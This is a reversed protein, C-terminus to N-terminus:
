SWSLSPAVSNKVEAFAQLGKHIPFLCNALPMEGSQMASTIWATFNSGTAVSPQVNSVFLSARKGRFLTWTEAQTGNGASTKGRGPRWCDQQYHAPCLNASSDEPCDGAQRKMFYLLESLRPRDMNQLVFVAKQMNPRLKEVILKASFNTGDRSDTTKDNENSQENRQVPAWSDHALIPDIELVRNPGDEWVLSSQDVRSYDTEIFKYEIITQVKPDVEITVLQTWRDGESWFLKVCFYPDWDGLEKSNGVLYLGRGFGIKKQLCFTVQVQCHERVEEAASSKKRPCALASPQDNNPQNM